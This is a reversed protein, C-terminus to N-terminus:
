VASTDPDPPAKAEGIAKALLARVRAPEAIGALVVPLQGSKTRHAGYRAAAVLYPEVPGFTITGTGGREPLVVPSALGTLRATTTRRWVVGADVLVRRDTVVYTLRRLQLFRVGAHVLLLGGGAATAQLAPRTDAAVAVGLLGLLVILVLMAALHDYRNFLRRIVPKGTWLVEERM